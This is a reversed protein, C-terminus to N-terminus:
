KTGETDTSSEEIIKRRRLIRRPKLTEEEASSKSEEINENEFKSEMQKQNGSIPIQFNV